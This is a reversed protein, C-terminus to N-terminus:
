NETSSGTRYRSIADGAPTTQPSKQRRIEWGRRKGFSDQSASHLTGQHAAAEGDSGTDDGAVDDAEHANSEGGVQEAGVRLCIRQGHGYTRQIGQIGHEDVGHNEGEHRHKGFPVADIAGGQEEFQVAQEGPQKGEQGQGGHEGGWPEDGNEGGAEVGAVIV